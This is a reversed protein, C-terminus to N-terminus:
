VNKEKKKLHKDKNYVDIQKYVAFGIGWAIFFFPLRRLPCNWLLINIIFFLSVMLTLILLHYEIYQTNSGIISPLFCMTSLSLIIISAGISLIIEQYWDFTRFEEISMFLILYTVFSYLLISILVNREHGKISLIIKEWNM